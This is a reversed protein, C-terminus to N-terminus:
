QEIKNCQIETKVAISAIAAVGAGATILIEGVDPNNCVQYIMVGLAVAAAGVCQWYSHKKLKIVEQDPELLGDIARNSLRSPEM